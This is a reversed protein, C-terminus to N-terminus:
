LVSASPACVPSFIRNENHKANVGNKSRKPRLKLVKWSDNQDHELIRIFKKAFNKFPTNSADCRGLIM